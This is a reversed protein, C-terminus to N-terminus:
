SRIISDLNKGKPHPRPKALVLRNAARTQGFSLFEFSGTFRPGNGYSVVRARAGVAGRVVMFPLNYRSSNAQSDSSVTQNVFSSM